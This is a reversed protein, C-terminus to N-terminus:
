IHILSLSLGRDHLIKKFDNYFPIRKFSKLFFLVSDPNKDKMLNLYDEETNQYTELFNFLTKFMRSASGSAPVFKLIKINKIEKNFIDLYKKIESENFKKIGSNITAACSLNIPINGHKLYNFQEKVNDPNLGRNKIQDIDTKTLM